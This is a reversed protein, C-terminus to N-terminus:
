DHLIGKLNLAKILENCVSDYLIPIGDWDVDASMRLGNCCVEGATKSGTFFEWRAVGNVMAALLLKRESEANRM